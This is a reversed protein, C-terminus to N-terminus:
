RIQLAGALFVGPFFPIEVSENQSQYHLGGNTVQYIIRLKRFSRCDVM